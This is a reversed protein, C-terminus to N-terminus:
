LELHKKWLAAPTRKQWHSDDLLELGRLFGLRFALRKLPIHMQYITMLTRQRTDGQGLTSAPLAAWEALRKYIWQHMPKDLKLWTRFDAALTDLTASGHIAAFVQPLTQALVPSMLGLLEERNLYQDLTTPHRHLVKAAPEFYIGKRTPGLVRFGLALDEYYVPRLLPEFGGSSLFDAARISLNLTWAHRFDYWQHPQLQNYFFIAPTDALFADFVTAGAAPMEWPAQGLVMSGAPLSSLTRLHTAVLASDPRADANGFILIDSPAHQVLENRIAAAGQRDFRHPHFRIAPSAPTHDDLPPIDCGDAGIHVDLQVDPPLEQRSFGELTWRLLAPDGRFAIIAAVRTPM